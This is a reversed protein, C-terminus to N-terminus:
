AVSPLAILEPHLTRPDLGHANLHSTWENLFRAGKSQNCPACSPVVNTISNSGGRSLPVVHDPEIQDNDKPARCYACVKGIDMWKRTVEAWTYAGSAGRERARRRVKGQKRACYRSCHRAVGSESHALFAEGCWSCDGSVWLRQRQAARAKSPPAVWPVLATSVPGWPCSRPGWRAYDRCLNSCYKGDQRTSQHKVGCGQCTIVYKAHRNPQHAQNYHSRCGGKAYHTRECGITECTRQSM